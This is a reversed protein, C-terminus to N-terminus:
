RSADLKLRLRALSQRPHKWVAEASLLRQFDSSVPWKFSRKRHFCVNLFASRSFQERVVAIREFASM